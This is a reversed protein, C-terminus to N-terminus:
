NKFERVLKGFVSWNEVPKKRITKERTKQILEKPAAAQTGVGSGEGGRNATEGGGGAVWPGATRRGRRARRPSCGGREEENRGGNWGKGCRRTIRAEQNSLVASRGPSIPQTRPKRFIGCKQPYM